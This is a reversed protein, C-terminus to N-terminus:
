LYRKILADKVLEEYTKSYDSLMLSGKLEKVIKSLEKRESNVTNVSLSKLYEEIINSLSRGQNKAYEKAKTIVEQDISITLKNKM